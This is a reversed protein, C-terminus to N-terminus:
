GEQTDRSDGDRSVGRSHSKVAKDTAQTLGALAHSAESVQTLDRAIKSLALDIISLEQNMQIGLADAVADDRSTSSLSLAVPITAFESSAAPPTEIRPRKPTSLADDCYTAIASSGRKTGHRDDDDTGNTADVPEEIQTTGFLHTPNAAM